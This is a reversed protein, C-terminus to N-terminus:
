FDRGLGYFQGDNARVVDDFSVPNQLPPRSAGDPGVSYLDYESNIPVLFRDKRARGRWGPGEFLFYVYSRGWPDPGRGLPLEDLSRPLDDERDRYREIESDILRMDVIARRVKTREITQVLFPVLIAAIVSLIALVLLAEILTWGQAVAPASRQTAAMLPGPPAERLPGM